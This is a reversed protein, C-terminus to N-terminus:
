VVLTDEANDVYVYLQWLFGKAYLPQGLEEMEEDPCSFDYTSTSWIGESRQKRLQSAASLCLRTTGKRAPAWKDHVYVSNGELNRSRDMALLNYLNVQEQQDTFFPLEPLMIFRFTKTLHPVRLIESLDRYVGKSCSQGQAGRSWHALAIAVDNECGFLDDQKACLSVAQSCLGCFALCVGAVTVVQYVDRFKRLLWNSCAQM